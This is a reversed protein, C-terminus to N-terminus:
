KYNEINKKVADDCLQACFAQFAKPDQITIGPINMLHLSRITGLLTGTLAAYNKVGDTNTIINRLNSM